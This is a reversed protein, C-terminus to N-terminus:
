LWQGWRPPVILQLLGTGLWYGELDLATGLRPLVPHSSPFGQGHVWGHLAGSFDRSSEGPATGLM